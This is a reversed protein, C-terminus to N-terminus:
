ADSKDICMCLADALDSKKKAQLWLDKWKGSELLTDTKLFSEIRAESGAKREKYGADGVQVNEVKKGAHVLVLKPPNPQLIDRLTAFLIMQVSKMTPNKFAPQNELCILTTSSWLEKNHLVLSRIADHIVSLNADPAKTVKVKIIPLSFHKSLEAVIEDRKTLRKVPDKNFLIAKCEKVGPIKTLRSGSLDTFPTIPCHKVCYLKENSTYSAKVKCLHCTVKVTPDLNSTETLLNCNDWGLIKFKKDKYELCSWALNKIGIDFALIRAM